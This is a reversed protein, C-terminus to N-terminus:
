EAAMAAEMYAVPDKAVDSLNPKLLAEATPKVNSSGQGAKSGAGSPADSALLGAYNESLSKLREKVMVENGLDELDAFDNKITLNRINEPVSDLWKLSNGIKALQADRKEQSYQTKLTESENTLAEIKSAARELELKMREVEGLDKGKLEDIQAQLEDARQQAKKKDSLIGSAKGSEAELKAELAAIKDATGDDATLAAIAAEDVGADKLAKIAEEKTM